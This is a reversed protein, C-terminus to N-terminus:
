SSLEFLLIAQLTCCVWSGDGCKKSAFYTPVIDFPEGPAGHYFTNYGQWSSDGPCGEDQRENFGCLVVDVDVGNTQHGQGDEAASSLCSGSAFHWMRHPNTLDNKKQLLGRSRPPTPTRPVLMPPSTAMTTPSTISQSPTTRWFAPSRV